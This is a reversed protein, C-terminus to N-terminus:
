VPSGGPNGAIDSNYCVYGYKEIIECSSQYIKDNTQELIDVWHIRPDRRFWTMQRKAYRRTERKVTEVAEERTMEGRLYAATEKYGIAQMATAGPGVGAQLLSKVEDELGRAFMEDVRADIRRYLAARDSCYLGIMCLRFVPPAKRSAELHSSMTRGTQRYIEIARIIRGLNNPHLRAATQPDFSRLMELLKEGGERRALQELSARLAHDPGPGDDFRINDVLSNVYLGTGGALVPLRSKAAIDDIASRARAAFDAVSFPEGPSVIDLMHHAVGRTEELTPKATGIDMGRYVQMSDCSVVEGGYRLALEVALKTKGSATPGVIVLLDTM